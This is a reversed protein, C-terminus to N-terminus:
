SVPKEVSSVSKARSGLGFWIGGVGGLGLMILKIPPLQFINRLFYAFSDDKLFPFNKWETFIGLALAAIGALVALPISRRRIFGGCGLGLLVGPIMMAYFNQRALWGAIYFGAVGGVAAGVVGLM